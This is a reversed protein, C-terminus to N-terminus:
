TDTAATVRAPHIGPQDTLIVGVAMHWSVFFVARERATKKQKMLFLSQTTLRSNDPTRM